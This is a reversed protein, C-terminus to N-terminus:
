RATENERARTNDRISWTTHLQRSQHARSPHPSQKMKVIPAFYKDLLQQCGPKRTVECRGPLSNEHFEGEAM